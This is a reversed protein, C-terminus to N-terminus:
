DTRAVLYARLILHARVAPTGPHSPSKGAKIATWCSLIVIGLSLGMLIVQFALSLRRGSLALSVVDDVVSGERSWSNWGKVLRVTELVLIASALIGVVATSGYAGYRYAKGFLKKTTEPGSHILHIGRILFAFTLFITADSICGLFFSVSILHFQAKILTIWDPEIIGYQSAALQNFAM